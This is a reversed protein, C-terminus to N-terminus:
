RLAMRHQEKLDAWARLKAAFDKEEAKRTSEAAKKARSAIDQLSAAPAPVIGEGTSAKGVLAELRRVHESFRHSSHQRHGGEGLAKARREALWTQLSQPIGDPGLTSQKGESEYLKKTVVKCEEEM